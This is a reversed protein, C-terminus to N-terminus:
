FIDTRRKWLDKSRGLELAENQQPLSNTAVGVLGDISKTLNLMHSGIDSMNFLSGDDERDKAGAGTKYPSPCEGLVVHPTHKDAACDVSLQQCVKNLLQAQNACTFVIHHMQTCTGKDTTEMRSNM